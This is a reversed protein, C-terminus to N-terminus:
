RRITVLQETKVNYFTYSDAESREILYDKPDLGQSSLFQKQNYSLKKPNKM